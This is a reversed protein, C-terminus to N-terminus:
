KKRYMSYLSLGKEVNIVSDKTYTKGKGNPDTNWSDFIYGDYEPPVYDLVVENPQNVKIPYTKMPEYIRKHINSVVMVVDERYLEDLFPKVEEPRILDGTTIRREWDSFKYNKGDTSTITRYYEINIDTDYVIDLISEGVETPYKNLKRIGNLVGIPVNKTKSNTYGIYLETNLDVLLPMVEEKVGFDSQVDFGGKDFELINANKFFLPVCYFNKLTIKGKGELDIGHIEEGLEDFEKLNEYPEGIYVTHQLQLRNSTWSEAFVPDKLIIDNKLEVENILVGDYKVGPISVKGNKYIKDAMTMEKLGILLNVKGNNELIIDDILVPLGDVFLKLGKIVCTTGTIEFNKPNYLLVEGKGYIAKIMKSFNEILFGNDKNLDEALLYRNDVYMSSLYGRDTYKLLEIEKM